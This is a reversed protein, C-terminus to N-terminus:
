SELGNQKSPTALLRILPHLVPLGPTFINLLIGFEKVTNRFEARSRPKFNVINGEGSSKTFNRLPFQSVIITLLPLSNTSLIPTQYQSLASPYSPSSPPPSSPPSSTCPFCSHTTSLNDWQQGALPLVELQSRLGKTMGQYHLMRAKLYM